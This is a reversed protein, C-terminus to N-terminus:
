FAALIRLAFIIWMAMLVIAGAVFIQFRRLLNNSGTHVGAHVLRLLVFVWECVVFLLDDKKTLIALVVLAYFLIPLEFQNQFARSIQAPRDPWAPQGLAIDRPKVLGSRLAGVRAFGTWFLLGFTLAVLVFVPLLVSQISM